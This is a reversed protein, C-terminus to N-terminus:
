EGLKYYEIYEEIMKFMDIPSMEFSLICNAVFCAVSDKAKEENDPFFNLAKRHEVAFERPDSNM